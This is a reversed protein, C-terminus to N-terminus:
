RPLLAHQNCGKEIFDKPIESGHLSCIWTANDGPDSYKCNRCNPVVADDRHCIGWMTCMKCIWFTEKKSIRPPPTKTTIIHLAKARAEEATQEGLEILETYLSSDNKNFAVYLAHKIGFAKGYVSQQVYHQHKAGIVTNKVLENFPSGTRSSKIELLTPENLGIAPWRFIGDCSGGFHSGIDSFRVQEGTEDVKDLFEAGKARMIERVAVELRHGKGFLREMRASHVERKFWRFHYWIYRACENGIVSAGLHSRYGDGANELAHADFAEKVREAVTRLGYAENLDIQVLQQSMKSAQNLKYAPLHQPRRAVRGRAQLIRLRLRKNTNSQM